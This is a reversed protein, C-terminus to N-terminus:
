YYEGAKDDGPKETATKSFYQGLHELNMRILTNKSLEVLHSVTERDGEERLKAFLAGRLEPNRLAAKLNSVHYERSIRAMSEALSSMSRSVPGTDIKLDFQPKARKAIRKGAADWAQQLENLSGKTFGGTPFKPFNVTKMVGEAVARDIEEATLPKVEWRSTDLVWGYRESLVRSLEELKEQGTETVVSAGKADFDPIHHPLPWPGYNTNLDIKLELLIADLEAREQELERINQNIENRRQKLGTRKAVTKDYTAKAKARIDESLHKLMRDFEAVVAKSDVTVKPASAKPDAKASDSQPEAEPKASLTQSSSKPDVKKVGFPECPYIPIEKNETSPIYIHTVRRRCAAFNESLNVASIIATEAQRGDEWRMGFCDLEHARILTMEKPVPIWRDFEQANLRMEIKSIKYLNCFKGIADFIAEMDMCNMAIVPFGDTHIRADLRLLGSCAYHQHAREYIEFLMQKAVDSGSDITFGTNEYVTKFEQATKSQM